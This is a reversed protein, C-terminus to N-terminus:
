RAADLGGDKIVGEMQRAGKAGGEFIGTRERRGERGEEERREEPRTLSHWPAFIHRPM